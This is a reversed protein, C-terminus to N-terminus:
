GHINIENRLWYYIYFINLHKSVIYIHQTRINNRKIIEKM